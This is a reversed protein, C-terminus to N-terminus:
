SGGNEYTGSLSFEAEVTEFIFGAKLTVKTGISTSKDWSLTKSETYAFTTTAGCITKGGCCNISSISDSGGFSVQGSVTISNVYTTKDRCYCSSEDVNCMSGNPNPNTLTCYWANADEANPCCWSYGSNACCRGACHM